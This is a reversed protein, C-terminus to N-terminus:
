QVQVPLDLTDPLKKGKTEVPLIVVSLAALLITAEFLIVPVTQHCGSGMGVAILPCVMGGVRGIATAIGVGTTRLNTPYVEPAYICVIIFSASIFMRSGFLAGTTIMENQHTIIPLLLVFGSVLMIEMSIKRGVRDLIYAALALGPLEALSTIFVNTYLSPDKINESRLSPTDCESQPASLQSTLLIIGYYAFTNAFYLFWLLLTTRILKPSLLMLVSSSSRQSSSTKGNSLLATSESPENDYTMIKIHDSVLLGAPLEKQNAAAGNELIQRVEALRGQTTLYRPSEPVLGYFLLAMISPIASVGLLWRWGYTPMIWWALSAETITGVTWFTSFVIMWAGRNPTPVFELFWSSYVHGCGIGIGVLFRLILLLTYNPVIASLLGASTTLIASGLFGKKRGYTDSVLGWSYAGVLMGAFAVTSIMSEQNASLGWEPQIAPGVFSLLMMEM